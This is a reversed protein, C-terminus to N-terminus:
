IGKCCIFSFDLFRYSTVSRSSRLFGNRRIVEIIIGRASRLPASTKWIGDIEEIKRILEKSGDLRIWNRFRKNEFKCMKTANVYNNEKMMILEFKDYQIYCFREDIERTILDTFDM